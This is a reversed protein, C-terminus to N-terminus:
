LHAADFSESVQRVRLRRRLRALSRSALAGLRLRSLRQVGVALWAEDGSFHRAELPTIGLTFDRMWRMDLHRRRVARYLHALVPVLAEAAGVHAVSIVPMVGMDALADIGAMTSEAPELDGVLETWVTGAPFIQAAHALAELYRERGIYRARGVCHRSLIDADWLELNYSIADVGMAYARDVWRTTSPPHIQAAVFTDFHSRVAEVYPRLFDIGGDESDFVASNFYVLDATGEGFAARVVEVVDSVSAAREPELGRAGEVCFRCPAGRVSFGCSGAPSVVLHTGHVTAVNGMPMGSATRRAYFTPPPTVGVAIREGGDRVLCFRAGEAVLSFPSGATVRAETSVRVLLKGPLILDITRLGGDRATPGRSLPGERRVSDDLRLGHLALELKLHAPTV